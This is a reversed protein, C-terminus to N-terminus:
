SSKVEIGAADEINVEEIFDIARSDVTDNGHRQHYYDDKCVLQSFQLKELRFYFSYQQTTVKSSHIFLYVNIANTTKSVSYSPFVGLFPSVLSPIEKV